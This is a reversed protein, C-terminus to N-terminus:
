RNIGEITSYTGDKKVVVSITGGVDTRFIEVNPSQKVLRKLAATAPLGYNNPGVSVVANAPTLLGLFEDGSASDSGHHSMKLFEVKGLKIKGKGYIIDYLGAKYNNIVLNEQSIGADGTFVFRVGAYELYVIPSLDNIEQATPNEEANFDDYSSGSMGSPVPSLFALFWDSGEESKYMDSVIMPIENGVAAETVAAFEPYDTADKIRPAFIKGVNFRKIIAVANGIHDGDPHTLLLYDLSKSDTKEICKIIFNATADDKIGADILMNKGDPFNILISDGQGVDLFHVSFKGEEVPLNVKIEGCASLFCNLVLLVASLVVGATKFFKNSKM